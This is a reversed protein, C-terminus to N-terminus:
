EKDEIRGFLNDSLGSYNDSQLCAHHHLARRHHNGEGASHRSSTKSGGSSPNVVATGRSSKTSFNLEKDLFINSDSTQNSKGCSNLDLPQHVKSTSSSSAENDHTAMLALNIVKENESESDSEGGSNYNTETQQDTLM